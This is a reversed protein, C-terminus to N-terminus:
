AEKSKRVSTPSSRITTRAADLRWFELVCRVKNESCSERKRHDIISSKCVKKSLKQNQLTKTHNQIFLHFPKSLGTRLHQFLLTSPYVLHPKIHTYTLFYLYFHMYLNLNVRICAHDSNVRMM